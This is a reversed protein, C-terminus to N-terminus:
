KRFNVTAIGDLYVIKLRKLGRATAPERRTILFVTYSPAFASALTAVAATLQAAFMLRKRGFRDALLGPVLVLSRGFRLVLISRAAPLAATTAPPAATRRIWSLRTSPCSSM